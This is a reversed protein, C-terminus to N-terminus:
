TSFITSCVNWNGSSNRIKKNTLNKVCIRYSRNKTSASSPNASYSVCVRCAIILAAVHRQIPVPCTHLSLFVPLKNRFAYLLLNRHTVFQLRISKFSMFISIWNYEIPSFVCVFGFIYIKFFFVGHLFFQQYIYHYKWFEFRILIIERSCFSSFFFNVVCNHRYSLWNREIRKACSCSFKM